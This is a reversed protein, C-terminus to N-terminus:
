RLEKDLIQRLKQSLDKMNFPKQIFGDCGRELIETAHGKISYGSSLLVKIDSNIEKLRDFTDGGSIDPMIMDLIVIDIKDKNKEYIAIAEKGSRAILVEYGLKRLLQDGVDIIMDEDDVLLVTESGKLVGRVLKKEEIIEKESAPLYINFTAGEGKESYVNIFGGHNKIIGYASALGLGTGRGMEKTTFFPDFIRQQTAEDMGFGTDTVSIKIYRGPTVNFPKVYDKDLTVSETQVYLDGGGPMAQWANVYLNMFVQEIQGQDAEIAWVDKQYKGHVKIEKKTRGFMTSSKKILENIDTPKVEYKGGRAFGLLQKTLDAASKVYDEIGKLHEFDPHSPDKDMMMLSTRGQIGMLLNNFDHAIGGGLTGLAEMKQAQQLQAELKKRGSIDTLNVVTEVPDGELGKISASSIIVDIVDGQKTLRKSEFQVTKGSRYGEDIKAGTLEKQDDPVFPIRKGKLEDLSWGFFETFAQNLYQTHGETDYVIVPNPNSELIAKLREESERLAEEAKKRDTIDRISEIAGVIEGKSDYLRSAKNWLFGDPKVLPNYTESILFDEDKKVYQYKQKIEEDWKGVLDILVPRREGYFPIAYEYNGKGMIDEAKTGTMDQIAKNWAIVKGDKDIAFTADPLFDIIDRLQQKSEKLDDETKKRDTIDRVISRFGIPKNGIDKLLSISAEVFRKTGDKRIIEWGVTKASEGSKYVINCTEYVKEANEEDTYQRTNLGMLEDKSYGFIKGISDNFFTFNGALDVECYGEEINEVISRYKEESERLAEDARERRKEVKITQWIIYFSLALVIALIGAFIIFLNQTISAIDSRVDEVYIGTGIIWGWPEFLKVYSIKSVVREPNDKWQWIYDVYGSGQSRVKNVFEVFLHKGNPDTFETLDQGELRSLYPHMVMRPHMDNIWFYDKGEPGYRMGRIRKVVRSRADELKLEGLRVRQNYVSLLSCSSETLERIMERKQSMMHKELSPIFILFTSLVFLVFMLGVPIIVRLSATRALLKAFLDTVVNKNMSMNM